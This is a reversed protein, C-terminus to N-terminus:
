YELAITRSLKKQEFHIRTPQHHKQMEEACIYWETDEPGEKEFVKASKEFYFCALCIPRNQEKPEFKSM